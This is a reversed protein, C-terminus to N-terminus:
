LSAWPQSQAGERNIQEVAREAREVDEAKAAGTLIAPAALEAAAVPLVSAMVRDVLRPSLRDRLAHPVQDFTSARLYLAFDQRAQDLWRYFSDRKRPVEAWKDAFNEAPNVPNAVWATGSRDEIFRD